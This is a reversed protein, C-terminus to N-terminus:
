TRARHEAKPHRGVRGPDGLGHAVDSRHEDVLGIALHLRCGIRQRERGTVRFVDLEDAGERVKRALFDVVELSDEGDEIRATQSEPTRGDIGVRCAQAIGDARERM